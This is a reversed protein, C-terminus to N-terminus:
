VYKHGSDIAEKLTNPGVEAEKNLLKLVVKSHGYKCAEDIPRQQHFCACVCSLTAIFSKLFDSPIVSFHDRVFDLIM